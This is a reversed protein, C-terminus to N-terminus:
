PVTKTGDAGLDIGHRRLTDGLARYLQVTAKKWALQAAIETTEAQTLYTQQEIVAFNTSFGARFKEAESSLLQEQLHTAMTAAQAAQKAANLAIVANRVEAAAQAEMQRLRLREQQLQVRDAGLDAEAVKNQVPLNFQIGAELIQSARVGGTPITDLIPAGTTLDGGVPVLSPSIVGRSQFSGYLDIEPLRANASGAVAREGNSVQLKAQRIDPRQELAHQILEAMPSLQTDSPSTLEETAVIDVPKANPTSLSQPDIVSRLVNEQQERLSNAQTLAIQSAAVLAEARAVEIPPMRGVGLQQRNDSLLHNAADLAKQQVKVSNQLSVLDYYLSEVGSVTSIMQQELIAASIKTNTKAIAIYRTNNKRGAGRLLPQAFLAIANPHTFPVASSRGSYFSQVFDNIGVQISAGTAFGKVAITNGLTNNTITTDGPTSSASTVIVNSPDRRIWGYQGLLNLDFVPVPAGPSFPATAISLSHQAELVHGANYSSPITIGSPLIGNPSLTSATSSLLPVPAVVEGAPTEAINYNISRPITGGEARTVSFDAASQDIQELRIDLNNELAMRIAQELSLQLGDDPKAEPGAKVELRGSQGVGSTYAFAIGLLLLSSTACTKWARMTRFWPIHPAARCGSIM